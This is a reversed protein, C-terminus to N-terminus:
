QRGPLSDLKERAIKAEQSDPHKRILENLYTRVNSYERLEMYSLGLRLLSAPVKQSDSHERLVKEFETIAELYKGQLYFCDGLLYQAEGALENGPYNRLLEKFGQIALSYNGKSYDIRSNNFIKEADAGGEESPKEVAAIAPSRQITVRKRDGGFGADVLKSDVIQIKEELANIKTNIEARIQRLFELEEKLQEQSENLTADVNSLRSEITNEISNLQRQIQIMDNKFKRVEGRTACSFLYAGALFVSLIIIRIKM